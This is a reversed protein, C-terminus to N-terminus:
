GLPAPVQVVHLQMKDQIVIFAGAEAPRKEWTEAFATRFREPYLQDLTRYVPDSNEAVWLAGPGQQQTQLLALEMVHAQQAETHPSTDSTTENQVTAM